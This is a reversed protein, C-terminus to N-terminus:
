NRLGSSHCVGHESLFTCSGNPSAAFLLCVEPNYWVTCTYQVQLKRCDVRLDVVVSEDKTFGSLSEKLLSEIDSDTM